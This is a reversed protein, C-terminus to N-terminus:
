LVIGLGFSLCQLSFSMRGFLNDNIFIGGGIGADAKVVDSQTRHFGGDPGERSDYEWPRFFGGGFAEVFFKQNIQYILRLRLPFVIFLHTFDVSPQSLSLRILSAGVGPELHLVMRDNLEGLFFSASFFNGWAKFRKEPFVEEGLPSFIQFHVSTARFRTYRASRDEEEFVDSHTVQKEPPEKFAEKPRVRLTKEARGVEVFFLALLLFPIHRKMM